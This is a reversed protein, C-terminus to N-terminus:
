QTCFYRPEFAPFPLAGGREDGVIHDLADDPPVTMDGHLFQPSLAIIREQELLLLPTEDIEGGVLRDGGRRPQCGCDLKEGVDMEKIIIAQRRETQHRPIGASSHM